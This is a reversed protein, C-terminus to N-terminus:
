KKPNRKAFVHGSRSATFSLSVEHQEIHVHHAVLHAKKSVCEVCLRYNPAVCHFCELHFDGRLPGKCKSCSLEPWHNPLAPTPCETLTSLSELANRINQLVNELRQKEKEQEETSFPQFLNAEDIYVFKELCGGQYNTDTGSDTNRGCVMNRCARLRRIPQRGCHPCRRSGKVKPYGGDLDWELEARNTKHIQEISAVVDAVDQELRGMQKALITRHDAVFGARDTNFKAAARKEEEFEQLNLAACRAMADGFQAWQKVSRVEGCSSANPHHPYSCHACWLVKCQRCRVEVPMGPHEENKPMPAHFPIQHDRNLPCHFLAEYEDDGEGLSMSEILKARVTKDVIDGFENVAVEFDYCGKGTKKGAKIFYLAAREVCMKCFRESGLNIFADRPWIFSCRKCSEYTMALATPVSRAMSTRAFAALRNKSVASLATAVVEKADRGTSEILAAVITILKPLWSTASAADSRAPLQPVYPAILPLLAEYLIALIYEDRERWLFSRSMLRENVFGSQFEIRSLEEELARRAPGDGGHGSSAHDHLFDYRVWADSRLVLQPTDMPLSFAILLATKHEEVAAERMAAAAVGFAFPPTRFFRFAEEDDDDEDDEDDEDDCPAQKIRQLAASAVGRFAAAASAKLLRFNDSTAQIPPGPVLGSLANHLPAQVDNADDGHAAYADSISVPVDHRFHLLLIQEYLLAGDKKRQCPNHDDVPGFCEGCCTACEM